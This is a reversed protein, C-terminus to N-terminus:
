GGSELNTVNLQKFCVSTKQEEKEEPFSGRKSTNCGAAGRSYDRLNADQDPEMFYGQCIGERKNEPRQCKGEAGNRGM